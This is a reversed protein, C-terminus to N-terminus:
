LNEKLFFQEFCGSRGSNQFRRQSETRRSSLPAVSIETEQTPAPVGALVVVPEKFITSAVPRAMVVAVRIGVLVALLAAELVPVGINVLPSKFIVAISGLKGAVSMADAMVTACAPVGRAAPAM